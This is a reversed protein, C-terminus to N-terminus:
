APIPEAMRGGAARALADRLLVHEPARLEPDGAVTAHACAHARELLEADEPLRAVRFREQGSQRTGALEGRGRLALDIEALEFGDSHVALARLRRSWPAEALLYCEAPDGGRGVRGRLQHLQSIGFREANEVVMVTAEPVDIGVEVVTTCVLAQAEGAAFAAMAAHKEEAPMQGHLLRLRFGALEGRALRELEATAARAHGEPDRGGCGAELDGDACALGPGIEADGARSDGAARRAGPCVAPEQPGDEPHTVLPCVVYARRGADLHARLARYARERGARGSLVRTRPPKRGRPLERLVSVDLDGCSALALTRPIPTATMHLAHPVTPRAGKRDLESRQGVGFRHQEDVVALALSRFRVDPEILAHTGVVLVVEGTALRELLARRARRSLSGTLLGVEPRAPARGDAAQRVGLGASGHLAAPLRDLLGALTRCHQEALVETPAMLAAQHGCEVARLMAYLAVVTKGSGVEGILLRQMPVGARLDADIEAIARRQDGTPEFPLGAGLWPASLTREGRLAPAARARRRSRRRLLVLQSLLLEEFALRARAHAEMREDSGFHLTALAESRGALRERARMRAPLPEAVERLLPRAARVLSALQTSSVGAAAPYHPIAGEGVEAGGSAEESARSTGERAESGGPAWSGGPVGSGGRAGSSTGGPVTGPDPQAGGAGEPAHSWVYLCGKGDLKGHLLLRTGPPYRRALWPQNFFAARRAGSSDFVQAHVVSRARVPRRALLDRSGRRLALRRSSISAVEVAVTAQEGPRLSRLPRLLRRDRPIHELLDGVCEIGLAQLGSVLRPSRVGLPASLSSPRPLRVPAAALQEM